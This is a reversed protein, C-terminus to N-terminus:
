GEAAGSISLKLFLNAFEEPKFTARIFDRGARFPCYFCDRECASTLLTKLLKINKGNPLRAPHIFASDQEKSTFCLPKATGALHDADPEFSMQSSLLKLRSIPDM